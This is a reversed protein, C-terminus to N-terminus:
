VTTIVVSRYATCKPRVFARTQLSSGFPFFGTNIPGLFGDDSRPLYFPQVGVTSGVDLFPLFVTTYFSM